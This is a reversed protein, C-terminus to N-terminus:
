FSEKFIAISLQFIYSITSNFSLLMNNREYVCYNPLLYLKNRSVTDFQVYGLKCQFVHVFSCVFLLCVVLEM